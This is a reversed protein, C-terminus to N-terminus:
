ILGLLHWWLFDLPWLVLMTLAALILCIRQASGMPEGGLAMAVVLPPSEYVLVPNSFGLVQSHLITMLPLGTVDAIRSALPTLVAPAGTLTTAMSVVTSIMALGTFNGVPRDPALPVWHLIQDAMASALGSKDLLAGMGMVGGVYFMSGFNIQRNFEDSGVLGIKPSLLILAAAMSVWAPSIHHWADTAWFGLALVLIVGLYKERGTMPQSDHAPVPGPTDPFMWVILPIMLALKLVGLVPFHLLLYEGYTFSVHYLAEAAGVMVVNPVNAPLISFTAVHSGFAAALIVGVRGKSGPPFGYGEALSLAIPMMLVARGISSPMAFGLVTGIVGVGTIVGWYSSGFAFAM